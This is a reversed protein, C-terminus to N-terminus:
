ENAKSLIAITLGFSIVIGLVLIFIGIFYSKLFLLLGSFFIVLGVIISIFVAVTKIVIKAIPKKSKIEYDLFRYNRNMIEQLYQDFSDAIVVMSDIDHEYRVIQGVKGDNSPTFDIYLTVGGDCVFQLWKVNNIDSTIRNDVEIDEYEREIFSSFYKKVDDKTNIMQEVNCLRCPGTGFELDDEFFYISTGDSYKLLDILSNPINPFEKLLNNLKDELIGRKNELFTEFKTISEEDGQFYKEKLGNIYKEVINKNDMKESTHYILYILYIM